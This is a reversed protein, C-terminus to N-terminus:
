KTDRESINTNLKQDSKMWNLAKEIAQRRVTQREEPTMDCVRKCVSGDPAIYVIIPKVKM